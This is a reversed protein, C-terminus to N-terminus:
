LTCWFDSM